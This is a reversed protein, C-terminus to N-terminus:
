VGFSVFVEFEVINTKALFCRAVQTRVKETTELFVPRRKPISLSLFSDSEIIHLIVASNYM